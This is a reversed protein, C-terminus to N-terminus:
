KKPKPGSRDILALAVDLRYLVRASRFNGLKIPKLFGQEELRGFHTNSFALGM